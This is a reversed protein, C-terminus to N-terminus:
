AAAETQFGDDASESTTDSTTGSAEVAAARKLLNRGEPSVRYVVGTSRGTLEFNLLGHAILKGHMPALCAQDIGPIEAIRPSWGSSEVDAEADDAPVSNARDSEYAHLLAAYHPNDLLLQLEDTTMSRTDSGSERGIM